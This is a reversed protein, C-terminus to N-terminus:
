GTPRLSHVLGSGHEAVTQHPSRGYQERYYQAFRSRHAFGWRAAVEGISVSEDSQLEAHAGALRARRLYHMPSEGTARKFAYQLGRTSIHVAAAVDDVTIPRHAHDDMFAKARRVTPDAPRQAVPASRETLTTPFAALVARLAYRRVEAEILPHAHGHLLTNRVHDFALEWYRGHAPTIPRPDTIRFVLTDDGSIRRAAQRVYSLEFAFARTRGTGEWEARLEDDSSIWPQSTDQRRHLGEALSGGSATMLCALLQDDTSMVTAVHADLSYDVVSLGPVAAACWDFHFSSGDVKRLRASPAVARWTEEVVAADRSRLQTVVGM